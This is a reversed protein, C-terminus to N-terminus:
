RPLLAPRSAWRCHRLAVQGTPRVADEARPRHLSGGCRCAFVGPRRAAASPPPSAASQRDAAPAPSRASRTVWSWPPQVAVQAHRRPAQSSRRARRRRGHHRTSSPSRDGAPSGAPGPSRDGLRSGALRSAFAIRGTWSPLPVVRRAIERYQSMPGSAACRRTMAGSRSLPATAVVASGQRARGRRRGVLKTASSSSSPRSRTTVTRPTSPRRCRERVRRRRWGARNAPSPTCRARRTSARTKTGRHRTCRSIHSMVRAVSRQMASIRVTTAALTAGAGRTTARLVVRGRQRGSATASNKASARRGPRRPLGLAESCGPSWNAARPISFSM